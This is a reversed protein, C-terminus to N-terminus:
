AFVVHIHFREMALRSNMTLKVGSRCEQLASLRIWCLRIMLTDEGKVPPLLTLTLFNAVRRM